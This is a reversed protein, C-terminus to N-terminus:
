RERNEKRFVPAAYVPPYTHSPTTLSERNIEGSQSSPFRADPRFRYKYHTDPARFPMKNEDRYKLRGHYGDSQVGSQSVDSREIQSQEEPSISRFRFAGVQPYLTHSEEIPRYVGPPQGMSPQIRAPALETDHRFRTTASDAQSYSNDAPRWRYGSYLDAHPTVPQYTYGSANEAFSGGHLMMGLMIGTSALFKIKSLDTVGFIAQLM